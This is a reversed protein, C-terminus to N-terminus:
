SNYYSEIIKIKKTGTYREHDESLIPDDIEYINVGCLEQQSGDHLFCKKYCKKDFKLLEFLLLDFRCIDTYKKHLIITDHLNITQFDGMSPIIKCKFRIIIPYGKLIDINTDKFDNNNFKSFDFITTTICIDKFKTDKSLDIYQIFREKLSFNM